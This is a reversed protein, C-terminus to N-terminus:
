LMQMLSKEMKFNLERHLHFTWATADENREWSEALIGVPNGHEDNSILPEWTGLKNSSYYVDELGCSEQEPWFM